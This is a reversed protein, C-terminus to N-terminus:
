LKVLKNKLATMVTKKETFMEVSGMAGERGFGSMKWGGFEQAPDFINYTNVWVIGSEVKSGFEQAVNLSETFIGSALGYSSDNARRLVEEMTSFKFVCLVPGFIEEKAIRMTDAVDVFITPEIFYGETGVRSGGCLLKAGEEQGIRVYDLIKNMQLESIVPGMTAESFCDGITVSAAYAQIRKVVEDYVGEHVFLRSAATCIQGAHTFIAAAAANSAEELDADNWIVLPSKGGCELAVRKMNTRSSAEMVKRGVITSGTFSVMNVDPHESIAAGAEPGRGSVINVVGAPLGAEVVLEGFRLTTLPTIDAPKIVVTCGCALAAAAKTVAMSLPYNWAVILGVVGVPQRHTVSFFNGDMPMSTSPVKDGYGAFFRLMRETDNIDFEAEAVPKGTDLAEMKVLEDHYKRVLDALKILYDRRQSPDQYRWTDYFCSKAAAVAIDVDAKGGAAVSCIEKGTSPDHTAMVDKSVADVFQNNIFLKTAFRLTPPQSARLVSRSM